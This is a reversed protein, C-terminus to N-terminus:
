EECCSRSYWDFLLSHKNGKAVHFIMGVLYPIQESKTPTTQVRSVVTGVSYLFRESKRTITQIRSSRVLKESTHPESLSAVVLNTVNIYLYEQTIPYLKM